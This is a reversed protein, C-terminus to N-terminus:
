HSGLWWLSLLGGAVLAIGAATRGAASGPGVRSPLAVIRGRSDQYETRYGLRRAIPALAHLLGTVLRMRTGTYIVEEKIEDALVALRLAHKVAHRKDTTLDPVIPVGAEFMLEIHGVPSHQTIIRLDEHDSPNRWAHPVNAPGVAEEGPKYDREQGGVRGRLTGSVVKHRETQWPHYHEAVSFHPPMTVDLRLLKGGNQEATELFEIRLGIPHEAVDGAHAM